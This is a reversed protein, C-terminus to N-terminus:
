IGVSSLSTLRGKNEMGERLREIGSRAAEKVKDVNKDTVDGNITVLSDISVSGGGGIISSLAKMQDYNFIFEPKTPTGHLEALQNKTSIGGTSYSNPELEMKFKDFFLRKLQELSIGAAGSDLGFKDRLKQNREQASEMGEEDGREQASNYAKKNEYLAGFQRRSLDMYTKTGDSVDINEAINMAQSAISAAEALDDYEDKLGGIQNSMTEFPVELNSPLDNLDEEFEKIINSIKGESNKIENIIDDYKGEVTAIQEEAEQQKISTQEEESERLTEIADDELDRKKELQLQDHKEQLERIKKNASATDVLRLENIKEQISMLEKNRDEERRDRNVRNQYRELMDLKRDQAKEFEELDEQIAEVKANKIDEYYSVIKDKIEKEKSEKDALINEQITSIEDLIKKKEEHRANQLELIENNIQQIKTENEISNEMEKTQQLKKRLISIQKDYLNMNKEIYSSMGDVLDLNEKNLERRDYLINNREIQSDLLSKEDELAEINSEIIDITRQKIRNYREARENILEQKDAKLSELTALNEQTKQAGEYLRIEKNIKKLKEDYYGNIEKVVDNLKKFNKSPDDEDEMSAYRAEAERIKADLISIQGNIKESAIELATKGNGDGDDGFPNDLNFEKLIKSIKDKLSKTATETLSNTGSMLTEGPLSGIRAQMLDSGVDMALAEYIAKVKGAYTEYNELSVGLGENEDELVGDLRDKAAKPIDDQALIINQVSADVQGELISMKDKLYTKFSDINSVANVDFDDFTKELEKIDEYDMEGSDNVNELAKSLKDLKERSSDINKISQNLIDINSAAEKTKKTESVFLHLFDKIATKQQELNVDELDLEAIVDQFVNAVGKNGTGSLAEKIQADTMTKMREYIQQNQSVEKAGKYM